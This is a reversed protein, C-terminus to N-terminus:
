QGVAMAFGSQESEEVMRLDNDRAFSMLFEYDRPSKECLEREVVLSKVESSFSVYVYPSYHPKRGPGFTALCGCLREAWDRPRFQQGRSNKGQIILRLPKAQTNM